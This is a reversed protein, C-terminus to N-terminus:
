DGNREVGITDQPKIAGGKIVKVFIGEKPMVCDGTQYYIDCRAHCTKGIQTIELVADKGAKLRTGIKLKLLDIKGTTINEAFDGPGVKLGRDKIKEISEEALLSVQRQAEGAHADGIIGYNEKLLASAVNRKRTGKASSISIAKIIGKM